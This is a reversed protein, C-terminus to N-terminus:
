LMCGTYNIKMEREFVKVKDHHTYESDCSPCKLVDYDEM